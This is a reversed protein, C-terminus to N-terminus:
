REAQRVLVIRDSAALRAIAEARGAPVTVDVLTSGDAALTPTGVTTAGVSSELPEAKGAAAPAPLAVILVKSGSPLTTVPLRGPALRLGVRTYATPVEPRGTTGEVVLSGDPLDVVAAQGVLESARAGSVVRLDEGRGIQVVSLDTAQIVEGRYITRNVKVVPQTAALSMFLFASGLGGLCVALIGALLWRPNRRLRVRRAPRPPAAKAM